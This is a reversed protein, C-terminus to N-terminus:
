ISFWNQGFITIILPIKTVSEEFPLEWNCNFVVNEFLYRKTINARTSTAKEKRKWPHKKNLFFHSQGVNPFCFGGVDTEFGEQFM